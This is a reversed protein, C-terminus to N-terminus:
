SKVKRKKVFRMSRKALQRGLSQHLSDYLVDFVLLKLFHLTYFFSFCRFTGYFRAKKTYNPHLKSYNEAIRKLLTHLM